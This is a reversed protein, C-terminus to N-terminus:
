RVCSLSEIYQFADCWFYILSDETVGENDVDCIKKFSKDVLNYGIVKGPVHIVLFSDEEKEERVLTLVAYAYHSPDTPLRKMMRPFAIGILDLDVRYKVSWGSYDKEMEYVNFRTMLGYVQVLHLHGRCEVLRWNDREDVDNREPGGIMPLVGLREEDVNFYLSDGWNCFWNIAGNWYVGGHVYMFMDAVFPEGSAKWSGTESSYIEIQFYSQDTYSESFSDYNTCWVHVVKYHPSRSPDFALSLNGLAACPEPLSTFQKTTPNLIHYKQENECCILGKCSNIIRIASLSPFLTPNEITELPIFDLDPVLKHTSSHLLLGSIINPNLNRIRAFYPSTILSLWHKSVSKFKPLSTLPLRTLIEILLDDNAAVQEAASSSPDQKHMNILKATKDAEISLFMNQIM